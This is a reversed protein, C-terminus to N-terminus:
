SFVQWQCCVIPSQTLISILLHAQEIQAALRGSVWKHFIIVPYKWPQEHSNDLQCNLTRTKLNKLRTEFRAALCKLRCLIHVRCWLKSSVEFKIFHLSLFCRSFCELALVQRVGVRRLVLLFFYVRGVSYFSFKSRAAKWSFLIPVWKSRWQIFHSCM